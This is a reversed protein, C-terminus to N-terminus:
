NKGGFMFILAWFPVEDISKNGYTVWVYIEVGITGAILAIFLGIISVYLITPLLELFKNKLKRLWAKM